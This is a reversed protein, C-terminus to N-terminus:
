FGKLKISQDVHLPIKTAVGDLSVLVSMVFGNGNKNEEKMQEALDELTKFSYESGCGTLKLVFGLTKIKM